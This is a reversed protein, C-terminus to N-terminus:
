NVLTQKYENPTIGVVKKFVKSFYKENQYGVNYAVEYIKLHENALLEKAKEMRIKTLYDTLTEGYQQKFKRSIYEKSLFFRDAIEQLNIEDQYNTRLYEEINQISNKEKQYKAKSLMKILHHFENRKEEKFKSFSFSGDELWYANGIYFPESDVINYDHLWNKKLQEFESEWNTIQELTLHNAHEFLRFVENLHPDIQEINGSKIAWMLEQSFDFLTIMKIESLDKETIMMKRKMLNHNLHVKEASIYASAINSAKGGLCVSSNFKFLQYFISVIQETMFALDKQKWFLLVFESDKQFNRFCVGANNKRMLQNCKKLFTALMGELDDSLKKEFPKTSIVGAQYQVKNLDVNFETKVRKTEISYDDSHKTLLRSFFHDWYLPKAEDLVQTEEIRAKRILEQAQWEKIAKEITENLIQPDIPKLIYDFSKYQIANRMYEYDEYGSIVITTSPIDSSHLWKLLAIGDRKPMRMDTFIIEPRHENILKIAEDGDEAEFITDIGFKDWQGLLLLGERVHKEDDIIIAKMKIEM